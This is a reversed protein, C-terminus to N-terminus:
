VLPIMMKLGATGQKKFYEEVQNGGFRVKVDEFELLASIRKRLRVTSSVAKCTSCAFLNPNPSASDRFKNCSKCFYKRQLNIVRSPPFKVASAQQDTPLLSPAVDTEDSRVKTSTNTTLSLKGNFMKVKANIVRYTGSAKVQDIVVGWLALPIAGTADNAWCDKKDVPENKYPLQVSVIPRNDINIYAKISVLDCILTIDKIDIFPADPKPEPKPIPHYAFDVSTKIEKSPSGFKIVDSYKKLKSPSRYVNELQLPTQEEAAEEFARKKTPELCVLESYVGEDTQLVANFYDCNKASSHNTKTM